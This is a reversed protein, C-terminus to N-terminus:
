RKRSKKRRARECAKRDLCEVPRGHHISGEMNLEAVPMRRGCRGCTDHTEVTRARTM